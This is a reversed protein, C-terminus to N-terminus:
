LRRSVNGLFLCVFAFFVVLPLGATALFESFANLPLRLRFFDASFILLTIVLARVATIEPRRLGILLALLTSFVAIAMFLLYQAKVQADIEQRPIAEIVVHRAEGKGLITLGISEGVGLRRSRDAQRDFTVRDGVKAGLAVLPSEPAIKTLRYSLDGEVPGFEVGYRGSKSPVLSRESYAIAWFDLALFVLALSVVFVKWQPVTFLQRHM